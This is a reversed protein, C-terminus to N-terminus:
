FQKKVLIWGTLLDQLSRRVQIFLFCKYGDYCFSFSAVGEGLSCLLVREATRESAQRVSLLCSAQPLFCCPTSSMNQGCWSPLSVHLDENQERLKYSLNWIWVLPALQPRVEWSLASHHYPNTAGSLLLIVRCDISASYFFHQNILSTAAGAIPWKSHPICLTAKFDAVVMVTTLQPPLSAPVSIWHCYLWPQRPVLM